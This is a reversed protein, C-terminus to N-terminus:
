KYYEDVWAKIQAVETDVVKKVGANATADKIYLDSCHFGGPIIQVPENPTSVLPGGPRFASSVGSDRWPDYQGNTWILRTTNKTLFWGDTWDNVTSATKNKASGYKYGNTEPFFLSCQRQWYAADVTRPVITSVNEPAGDQWWFFPENCLFWQWQRDMQNEVSTDTFLPSSANHTDFCAVSWEDKWYGYDACYGPLMTTNFWKAYGKLAKELGVGEPGPVVAAGAEVNEVSDCFQFFDSYGSSFTNEQWLYPGIPLVAAFDNYHELAGLGFLEKIDQQEKASGTKGVHDIYEAVLSVDKSCNQAMGQQIPYFYQWFDYIAEVPASTAHYAWFTGPSIAETWATLAGSYSGGVLVWPAKQANSSGNFDFELKVTKAFYTLDLISQELTLYQLTEATLNEYPSSGGWYRDLEILIVAGQIEQAYVGTLTNNTLYGEYGDASEEGPTFLVVKHRLSGDPCNLLRTRSMKYEESGQTLNM